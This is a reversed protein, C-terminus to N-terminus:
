GVQDFMNYFLVTYNCYERRKGSFHSFFHFLKYFHFALRITESKLNLGTETQIMDEKIRMWESIWVLMLNM